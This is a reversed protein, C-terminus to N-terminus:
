KQLHHPFMYRVDTWTTEFVFASIHNTTSSGPHYKLACNSFAIELILHTKHVSDFALMVIVLRNVEPYLWEKHARSGVQLLRPLATTREELTCFCM